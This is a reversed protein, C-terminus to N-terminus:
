TNEVEITSINEGGSIIIDKARDKLEIYGDPHMVGLDGSHFWGGRLAEETARPNKYYGQMVINGRMCVEGMTQGDAPVPRGEADLVLCDEALIYPVGQRAMLGSVRGVDLDRWAPQVECVTTPGYTETLGYVHIVDVNLNLMAAIVAPSPPAAATSVKLRHPFKTVGAKKAGDVIMALVIPAGCFHTVQHELISGIVVDPVVGRLCVHTGGIATVGWTYCWGNCHFMPLTWLYVAEASMNMELLNCVGNLYAGRHTYMVGKPNGTTGSTYNISIVNNEDSPLIMPDTTDAAALFEEYDVAGPPLWEPAHGPEQAVIFQRVSRLKDAVKRLTPLYEWDVLMVQAECHGVIFAIEEASLRNNIAVLTGGAMHVGFNAELHPPTNPALVAVSDNVGVGLARLGNAQRCAREYFRAYSTTRGGHIIATKDPYVRANRRLFSQPTLPMHNARSSM